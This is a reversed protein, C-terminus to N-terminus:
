LRSPDTESRRKARARIVARLGGRLNPKWHDIFLVLLLNEVGALFCVAGCFFLLWPVFGYFFLMLVFVGFMLLAFRAFGTHFSPLRKYRAIGILNSASWVALIAWIIYSYEVFVEGHLTWMAFLVVLVISIDAASDLMAGVKSVWGYRRALWGDLLDTAGAIVLLWAFARDAGIWALWILVPVTILRLASIINPLYRM